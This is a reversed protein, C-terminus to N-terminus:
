DIILAVNVIIIEGQMETILKTLQSPWKREQFRTFKKNNSNQELQRLWPLSYSVELRIYVLKKKNLKENKNKFYNIGLHVIIKQSRFIIM